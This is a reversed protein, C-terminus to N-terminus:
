CPPSSGPPAAQGNNIALVIDVFWCTLWSTLLGGGCLYVGACGKGWLCQFVAENWIMIPNSLCAKWDHFYSVLLSYHIVKRTGLSWKYSFMQQDAEARMIVSTGLEWSFWPGHKQTQTDVQWAWDAAVHAGTVIITPAPTSWLPLLTHHYLM